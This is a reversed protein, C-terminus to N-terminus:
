YMTSHLIQRQQRKPDSRGPEPLHVLAAHQCKANETKMSGGTSTVSDLLTLFPFSFFIFVLHLIM